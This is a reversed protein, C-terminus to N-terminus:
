LVWSLDRRKYVFKSPEYDWWAFIIRGDTNGSNANGDHTISVTTSPKLRSIGPHALGFIRPKKPNGM